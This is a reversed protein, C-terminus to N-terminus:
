LTARQEGSRANCLMVTGDASGSAVTSGDPSFVVDSVVSGHGELTALVASWIEETEPGRKM